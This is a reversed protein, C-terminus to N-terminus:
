LFQCHENDLIQTYNYLHFVQFFLIFVILFLCFNFPFSYSDFVFYSLPLPFLYLSYILVLCVLLNSSLYLFCYWCSIFLFLVFQYCLCQFVSRRGYQSQSSILYSVFHLRFLFLIFHLCLQIINERLSSRLHQLEM